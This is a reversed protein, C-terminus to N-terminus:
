RCLDSYKWAADAIDPAIEQVLESPNSIILAEVERIATDLRATACGSETKIQVAAESAADILERLAAM